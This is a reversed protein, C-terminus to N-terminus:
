RASLARLRPQTLEKVGLSELDTDKGKNMRCCREMVEMAEEQRHKSLYFKPSEPMFSIIALGIIGPIQNLLLLIRWNQVNHIKLPLIFYAM